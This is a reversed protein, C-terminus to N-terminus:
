PEPHSWGLLRHAKGCDYFGRNGPLDTRLPVHPWHQAALQASPTESITDAAVINIIEHGHWDPHLAALVAQGVADGRVYGWLHNIVMDPGPRDAIASRRDTTVGHLRLSAISLEPHRRALSDAQAEAIWKSLSYPDENYTPHREDVPFYDYHARRSYAGGVANISSATCIKTIGHEAAVTLANYSAVVNTHHVTAPDAVHPSRLGALHVIADAGDVAASLDDHDCADALVTATGPTKDIARVHHGAHALERTVARGVVGNAGTIAILM